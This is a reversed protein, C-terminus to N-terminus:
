LEKTMEVMTRRFGMRAFLRQAKDNPEATWLLARPAGRDRLWVLAADMLAAGIGTGRNEEEVLIDHIFGAPGRLEKWSMPELGAFVYGVIRGAIEAVFVVAQDDEIQSQLFAAYGAEARDGAALFRQPDFAHHARM